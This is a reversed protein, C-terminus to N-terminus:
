LADAIMNRAVEIGNALAGEVTGSEGGKYLAEGAFYLTKELPSALVDKAWHTDLTAYSYAGRTFPEATWNTIYYAILRDEIFQKNVQFIYALSDIAMSYIERNSKNKLQMGKPGAVWGTLLGNKVPEQTWWTPLKADSFIFFADKFKNPTEEEWFQNKFQFNLKVVAGFGMKRAAEKKQLLEPLFSISSEESDAQWVGLPITILVKSAIFLENNSTIVEVKGKQWTIHKVIQSLFILNDRKKVENILYYILEGYGNDIREQHNDDEKEWEDRLAFSSAKNVDAADYGQVFDIVSEKVEKDKEDPFHTELFEKLPVDNKLSRLEKMLKNWGVIFETSKKIQGYEVEWMKGKASHYKIEAKELLRLTVPLRGHVFEAGTEIVQKFRDDRISYIRGGARDRAELVVLKKNALSLEYAAALGSAGAGIILIDTQIM